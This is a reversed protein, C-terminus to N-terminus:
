RTVRHQAGKSLEVGRETVDGQLLEQLHTVDRVCIHKIQKAKVTIGPGRRKERVFLSRLGNGQGTVNTYKKQKRTNVNIGADGM